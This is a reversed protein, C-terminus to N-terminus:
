TQSSSFIAKNMQIPMQSHGSIKMCDDSIHM